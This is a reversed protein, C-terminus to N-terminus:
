TSPASAFPEGIGQADRLRGRRGSQVWGGQVTAVPNSPGRRRPTNARDVGTASLFTIAREVLSSYPYDAVQQAFTILTPSVGEGTTM